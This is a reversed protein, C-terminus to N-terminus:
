EHQGAVRVNMDAPLEHSQVNEHFDSTYDSDVAEAELIDELLAIYPLCAKGQIGHTEAFIQGDRTIRITIARHTM